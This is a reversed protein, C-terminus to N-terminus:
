SLLYFDYSVSFHHYLQLPWFPRTDFFLVAMIGHIEIHIDDNSLCQFQRWPEDHGNCDSALLM